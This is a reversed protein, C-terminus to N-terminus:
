ILLCHLQHHHTSVSPWPVLHRLRFMASFKLRKLIPRVFTLVSSLCVSLRCVSPRVIAYLSRKRESIFLPQNAMLLNWPRLDRFPVLGGSSPTRSALAFQGGESKTM